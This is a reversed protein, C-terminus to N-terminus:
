REINPRRRDAEDFCLNRCRKELVQSIASVDEPSLMPKLMKIWAAVNRPDRIEMSAGKPYNVLWGPLVVVPQVFDIAIKETRLLNRLSLAQGKAQKLPMEWKGSPFVVKEGEIRLENGRALNDRSKSYAKTEVAVVGGQGVAVHDINYAKGNEGTMPVDHFIRWGDSALPALNEAVVCEGLFGLRSTRITKMRDQVIRLVFVSAPIAVIGMARADGVRGRVLVYAIFAWFVPLLIAAASLDFVADIRREVCGWGPPRLIEQYFPERYDRRWQRKVQYMTWLVLATVAAMALLALVPAASFNWLTEWKM